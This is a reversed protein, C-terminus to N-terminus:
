IGVTSLKPVTYFRELQPARRRKRAGCYVFSRQLLRIRSRCEEIAAGCYVFSCRLSVRYRCSFQRYIFTFFIKKNHRKRNRRGCSGASLSGFCPRFCRWLLKPAAISGGKYSGSLKNIIEFKLNSIFHIVAFGSELVSPM